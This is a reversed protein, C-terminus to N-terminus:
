KISNLRELETIQCDDKFVGPIPLENSFKQQTYYMEKIFVELTNLISQYDTPSAIVSTKTCQILYYSRKYKYRLITELKLVWHETDKVISKHINPFLRYSVNTQNSNILQERPTM